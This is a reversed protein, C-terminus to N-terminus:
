QVVLRLNLTGQYVGVPLEPNADLRLHLQDDRVGEPSAPAHQFLALSGGDVGAGGVAPGDFRAFPSGAISGEVSAASISASPGVMAQAPVDFYGVLTVVGAEALNWASRVGVPAPFVNIGPQLAPIALATGSTIELALSPQRVATLAVAAVDSRAPAQAGAPHALALMIVLSGALGDRVRM